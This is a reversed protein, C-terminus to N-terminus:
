RQQLRKWQWPPLPSHVQWLGTGQKRANHELTVLEACLPHIRCYRPSVWAWGSRVLERNVLRDKSWVLAVIRGYRDKDLTRMTVTRGMVMGRTFRGAERGGPQGYEPSDIGFLRVRYRQSGKKVEISDGDAVRVVKAKWTQASLEWFSGALMSALVVLVLSAFTRRLWLWNYKCFVQTNDIFHCKL